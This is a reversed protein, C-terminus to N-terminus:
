LSVLSLARVQVRVHAPRRCLSVRERLRPLAPRRARVLSNILKMRMTRLAHASRALVLRSAGEWGGLMVTWLAKAGDVGVVFGILNATMMLLVNFVGGLAALHRYWPKTGFQPRAFSSTRSPGHPLADAAPSQTLDQRGQADLARHRARCAALRLSFPGTSRVKSAPVAKRAIMEPLVFLTVGWGWV